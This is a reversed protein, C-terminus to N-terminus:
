SSDNYNGATQRAPRLRNVATCTQLWISNEQLDVLSYSWVALSNTALSGTSYVNILLKVYKRSQVNSTNVGVIATLILAVSLGVCPELYNHRKYEDRYPDVVLVFLACLLSYVLALNYFVGTMPFFRLLYM